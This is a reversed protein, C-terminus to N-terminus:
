QKDIQEDDDDDFLKLLAATQLWSVQRQIKLLQFADNIFSTIQSKNLKGSSDQDYRMYALSFAKDIVFEKVKGFM